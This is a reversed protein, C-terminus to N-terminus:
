NLLHYCIIGTAVAVNLSEAGGLRPITVRRTIYPALEERLGHAESGMLIIGARLPKVEPLYEGTMEAALVPGPYAALVAPLNAYHVAVRTLSGKSANVVKPNYVDVADHSLLLKRIGFWDAIRIITGLNGPDNLKDVALLLDEPGLNLDARPPIEVVALAANNTTYTGLAALTSADTVYCRAPMATAAIGAYFDATAVLESVVFGSQLFERVSKGGEVIFKGERIRHKKLQLSKIYKIKSKALPNM